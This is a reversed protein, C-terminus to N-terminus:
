YMKLRSCPICPARTKGPKSGLSRSWAWVLACVCVCVFVCVCVKQCRKLIQKKVWLNMATSTFHSSKILQEGFFRWKCLCKLSASACSIDCVSQLTVCVCVCVCVCVSLSFAGVFVCPYSVTCDSLAKKIRSCIFVCKRLCLWCHVWACHGVSASRSSSVGNDDVSRPYTQGLLNRVTSSALTKAPSNGSSDSWNQM